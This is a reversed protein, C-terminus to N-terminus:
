DQGKLLPPPQRALQFGAVMDNLQRFGMWLSKVGPTPASPVPRFGAIRAVALVVDGVTVIAQGTARELVEKEVWSIAEEAPTQPTQRALYTLHLLRWAVISYLSLAKQLTAFTDLQLRQFQCGSKLVLHFREILWRKAYYGVILLAAAADAVPLTTLLVWEIPEQVGAPPTEESVRLVQMRVSPTGPPRAHRPARMLVSAVRVSLDAERAERDPRARVWVRKRAVIPAQAVAELLNGAGMADTTEICRPHTARILLAIEHRRPAALFAFVDAERDQILVAPQGPPLAKEVGRLADLWKHSEKDAFARKRRQQARGLEQPDRVWSQQDLLGLPTGETTMALASHILFGHQFEKDSIPGLGEVAPHSSFDAVSTDSAVLVLPESQCRLRTARIHGELLDQASTQPHHLIHSVAKRQSGLTRSFSLQAHEGLRQLASVLTHRCRPDWLRAGYLENYAWDNQM